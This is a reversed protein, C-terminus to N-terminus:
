YPTNVSFHNKLFIFLLTHYVGLDIHYLRHINNSIVNTLQLITSMPSDATNTPSQITISKLIHNFEIIQTIGELFSRMDGSNPEGNQINISELVTNKCLSDVLSKCLAGSYKFFSIKRITTLQLFKLIMETNITVTSKFKRLNCSAGLSEISLYVDEHIQNTNTLSEAFEWKIDLEFSHLLPPNLKIIDSMLKGQTTNDGDLIITLKTVTHFHYHKLSNYLRDNIEIFNLFLSKMASKSNWLQYIDIPTFNSLSSQDLVLSELTHNTITTTTDDTDPKVITVNQLNLSKLKRNSNICQILTTSKLMANNNPECEFSELNSQGSSLVELLPDISESNITFYYLDLSKLNPLKFIEIIDSLQSELYELSINQVKSFCPLMLLPTVNISCPGFLAHINKIQNEDPITEGLHKPFKSPHFNDDSEVSVWDFEISELTKSMEFFSRDFFKKFPEIFDVLNPTFTMYLASLTKSPPIKYNQSKVDSIEVFYCRINDKIVVYQSDNIYQFSTKSVSAMIVPTIKSKTMELIDEYNDWSNLNIKIELLKPLIMDNWKKCISRLLCSKNSKLPGHFDFYYKLIKVIIYDPLSNLNM